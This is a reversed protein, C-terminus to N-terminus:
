CSSWRCRWNWSPWGSYFVFARLVALAVVATIKYVEVRSWEHILLVASVIVAVVGLQTLTTVGPITGIIDRVLLGPGYGTFLQLPSLGSRVILYGFGVYGVLTAATVM